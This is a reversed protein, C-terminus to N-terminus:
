GAPPRLFVRGEARVPVLPLGAEAVVAELDSTIDSCARDSDGDCRVELAVHGEHETEEPEFGREQLLAKVAELDAERAVEVEIADAM